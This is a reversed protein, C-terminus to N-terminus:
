HHENGKNTEFFMFDILFCAGLMVAKVKVDCDMPFSIGFNDADTFGEQLLGGWQKSIQGVVVSEDLSLVEFVVDSMCRCDCFPGKIKLVSRRTTDLITFKPLFPHWNQFMYGVPVGPPSCVELEQLCCPFCCSGCKIPRSVTLVEHGMNDHIHITFPRLPGFFQMTWFNSEERAVFVQQGMSNKIVYNNSMEWGIIMETLDVKQHVLIQDIQALYELGPPCGMPRGPTPMHVPGPPINFPPPTGVPPHTDPYPHVVNIGPQMGIYYPGPDGPSAM